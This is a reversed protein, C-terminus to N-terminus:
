SEAIRLRTTLTIHRWLQMIRGTLVARVTLERGIAQPDIERRKYRCVTSPAIVRLKPVTVLNNILSGAIGDSLYEGEAGGSGNDFPLVAVSDIVKSVRRPRLRSSARAKQKGTTSLRNTRPKVLLETEEEVGSWGSETDRKLRQLDARMDAAKQYRLNSDKELARRIVEQLAPSIEPNVQIPAVPNRNLIAEMILGSSSGQFPLRGTAMEYLVFGFSFLDTRGDLEKARVQEPSMYVVTGVITGSSTLDNQEVYSASQTLQGAYRSSPIESTM